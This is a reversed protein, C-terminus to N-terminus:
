DDSDPGGTEPFSDFGQERASNENSGPEANSARVRGDLTILNSVAAEWPESFWNQEDHIPIAELKKLVQEAVPKNLYSYRFYVSWQHRLADGRIAYFTQNPNTPIVTGTDMIRQWSGGSKFGIVELNSIKM